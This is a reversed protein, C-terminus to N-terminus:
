PATDYKGGVRFNTDQMEVNCRSNGYFIIRGERTMIVAAETSSYVGSFEYCTYGQLNGSKEKPAEGMSVLIPAVDQGTDIDNLLAQLRKQREDAGIASLSATSGLTTKAM